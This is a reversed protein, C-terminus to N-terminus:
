EDSTEPELPVERHKHGGSRHSEQIREKHKRIQQEIKHIAQDLAAMLEPATHTAVFDDVHEAKIQLEIATTDKHELDVTVQISTIRDFYRNIKEVKETIRSQTTPSLHGHRASINILM